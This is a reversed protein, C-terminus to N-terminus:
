IGKFDAARLVAGIKNLENSFDEVLRNLIISKMWKLMFYFPLTM